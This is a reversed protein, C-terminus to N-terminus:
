LYVVIELPRKNEGEKQPNERANVLGVNITAATATKLFDRRNLSDNM